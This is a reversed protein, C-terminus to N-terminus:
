QLLTNPGVAPAVVIFKRWVAASFFPISTPGNVSACSIKKGNYGQQKACRGEPRVFRTLAGISQEM